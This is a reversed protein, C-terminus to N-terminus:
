ECAEVVVRVAERGKWQRGTEFRVPAFEVWRDSDDPLLSQRGRKDTLGDLLGKCAALANDPDCRRARVFTLTMRVKVAVRPRGAALWALWSKEAQEKRLRSLHGVTMARIRNPGLALPDGPIVLEIM